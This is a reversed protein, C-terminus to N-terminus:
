FLSLKTQAAAVKRFVRFVVCSVCFTIAWLQQNCPIFLRGPAPHVPTRTCSFRTAALACTANCAAPMPCIQSTTSPCADNTMATLPGTQPRPRFPTAALALTSCGHPARHAAVCLRNSLNNGTGYKPHTPRMCTTMGSKRTAGTRHVTTSFSLRDRTSITSSRKSVSAPRAKTTPRHTHWASACVV